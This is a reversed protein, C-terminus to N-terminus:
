SPLNIASDIALAAYRNLPEMTLVAIATATSISNMFDEYAMQKVSASQVHVPTRLQASLRATAIRAFRNHVTSFFRLPEESFEPKERM